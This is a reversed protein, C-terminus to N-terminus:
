PLTLHSKRIFVTNAIFLPTLFCVVSNVSKIFCCRTSGVYCRIYVTRPFNKSQRKKTIVGLQKCAVIYCAHTQIKYQFTQKLFM